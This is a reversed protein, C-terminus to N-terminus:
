KLYVCMSQPSSSKNVSRREIESTTLKRLCMGPEDVLM